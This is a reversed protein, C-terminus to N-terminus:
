YTTKEAFNKFSYCIVQILIFSEPIFGLIAALVMIPLRSFLLIKDVDNGSEYLLSNGALWQRDNVNELNWFPQNVSFNLGGRGSHASPPFFLLPLASLDKILPPHEPNLRSDKETLYSYGAGIHAVEDFTASDGLSSFVMLFFMGMLLLIAVFNSIKM